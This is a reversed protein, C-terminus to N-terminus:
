TPLLPPARGEVSPSLLLWHCIEQNPEGVRDPTTVLRCSSNEEYITCHYAALDPIYPLVAQRSDIGSALDVIQADDPGFDDWSPDLPSVILSILFLFVLLCLVNVTRM